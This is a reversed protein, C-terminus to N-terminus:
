FSQAVCILIYLSMCVCFNNHMECLSCRVRIREPTLRHKCHSLEPIKQEEKAGFDLHKHWEKARLPCGQIIDAKVAM